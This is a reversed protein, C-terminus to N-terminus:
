DESDKPDFEWLNDAFPSPIDKVIAGLMPAVGKILMLADTTINDSPDNKIARDIHEMHDLMQQMAILQAMSFRVQVGTVGYDTLVKRNQGNKVIQAM